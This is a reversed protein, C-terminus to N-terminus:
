VHKQDKLCVSGTLVCRNTTITSRGWYVLGDTERAAALLKGYALDAESSKALALAYATIAIEYGDTLEPLNRELYGLARQKASSLYM